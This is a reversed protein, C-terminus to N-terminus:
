YILILVYIYIDILIDIIDIHISITCENCHAKCIEKLLHNFSELVFQKDSKNIQKSASENNYIQM